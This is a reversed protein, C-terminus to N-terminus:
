KGIVRWWHFAFGELTVTKLKKNLSRSGFLHVWQTDPAIFEDVDLVIEQESFNHVFWLERYHHIMLAPNNDNVIEIKNKGIEPCQKRISILREIWNLFSQPDSQADLVNVKRYDYEGWDIVNEILDAAAAKSFGANPESSWQMPTRVPNRGKLSLDDGMGIEDGYRIVPIGPLSFMISYCFQHLQLDNNLM